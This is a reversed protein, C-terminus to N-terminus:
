IRIGIVLADDVQDLNGKWANYAEKLAEEQKDMDLHSITILLNKFNKLMFKKGKEGGFQDAYGDSFIYLQDGSEIELENEEFNKNVGYNFGGIPLKTATFEKLQKDRLLYLPRHAGSYYLRKNDQDIVILAIDMGDKTAENSHQKLALQVEKDLVTLIKAPETIKRELVIKNLLTNGIMSMFAGPVGHGTCDAAAIVKLGNSEGFWYFDGSVIDRPQYFVFTNTNQNNLNKKDPLLADQIRKAYTISDKIEQNQEDIIKNNREVLEKEERLEKTKEEVTRELILKTKELKATRQKVLILIFVVLLVLMFFWFLLSKWYPAGICVIIESAQTEAFGEANYALVQFTYTGDTLNGYEAKRSKTLDSWNEDRGLLRYKFRVDESNKLSLASFSFKFNYKGYSLKINSHTLILSDNARVSTISSEALPDALRNKEAANYLIVQRDTGFYIDGSGALYFSNPNFLPDFDKGFDVKKLIKENLYYKYLADSQMMWVIDKKDYILAKCFKSDLEQNKEFPRLMTDHLQYIGDGNTGIFIRGDNVETFSTYDSILGNDKNDIEFVESGKSFNFSTNHTAYYIQGSKSKLSYYVNNHLLSNEVSFHHKLELGSYCYVGDLNTCVQIEEDWKNGNIANICINPIKSFELDIVKQTAAQILILGNEKTGIWLRDMKDCYLSIVQDIKKSGLKNIHKVLDGQANIISLGKSGGFYTTGSSDQTIAFVSENDLDIWEFDTKFLRYLGMGTTGLWVNLERDIFILNATAAFDTEKLIKKRGTECNVICMREDKGAIYLDKNKENYCFTSINIYPQLDCKASTRVANVEDANVKIESIGSRMGSVIYHGPKEKLVQIQTIEENAGKLVKVEGSAVNMRCLGEDTALLLSEGNEEELWNIQYNESRNIKELKNKELYYIGNGKSFIYIRTKSKSDLLRSVSGQISKPYLRLRNKSRDLKYIKGSFTGFWLEHNKDLMGSYIIDDQEESELGYSTFVQGDFKVLGKGTAIWLFGEEDQIVSYIYSDPLGETKSFLRSTYNQSYSFSFIFLFSIFARLKFSM